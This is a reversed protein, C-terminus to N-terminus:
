GAVPLPVLRWRLEIPRSAAKLAQWNEYNAVPAWEALMSLSIPSASFPWPDVAIIWALGELSIELTVHRRGFGASKFSFQSLLKDLRPKMPSQELIEGAEGAIPADCCLWLSFLDATLLQAQARKAEDLAHGEGSRVWEDLWATRAKRKASLWAIANPEGAHDSDSLLNYFHGAVIFGALPGIKRAAAISRDWILLSEELPMELFSYPGGVAPNFKPAAEWEAWGDDHHTIGDVVERSFQNSLSSTLEGSIRAHEVQSVLLWKKEGETLELERRIM